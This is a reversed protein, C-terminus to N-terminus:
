ADSGGSWNLKGRLVEYFSLREPIHILAKRPARSFNIRDGPLLALSEQGDITLMFSGPAGERIGVEIREHGPVVLPRNSLTFPCVPNLIISETEPHLVPGGAALNYASSGTPTAIIIGDARFIGLPYGGARVDLEIVKAIGEGSVVGDNLALFSAMPAGARTVTMSLMLRASLGLKGGLWADISVEWDQRGFAAIFGLRGLNFPLIPIGHPSAIRAANLVTGDGGLSILLSVGEMMPYQLLPGRSELVRADIGLTALYAAIDSAILGAGDKQVNALIVVRRNAM